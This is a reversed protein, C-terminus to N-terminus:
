GNIAVESAKKLKWARLEEARDVKCIDYKLFDRAQNISLDHKIMLYNIINGGTDTSFCKFTQPRKSADIYFSEGVHDNFPNPAIVYDKGKKKARRCVDNQIYSLLDFGRVLEALSSSSSNVFSTTRPKYDELCNKKYLDILINNDFYVDKPEEIPKNTGYYLRDLNHCKNDAQKFISILGKNMQIAILPDRVVERAIAIVRFKPKEDTSSFSEYIFSYNINHKKLIDKAKEITLIEQEPDDNDVDVAFVQQSIWDKARTGNMEGVTFSYGLSIAKVLRKVSLDMVQKKAKTRAAVGRVENSAPKQKFARTDINLRM